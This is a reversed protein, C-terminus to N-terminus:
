PEAAADLQIMAVLVNRATDGADAGVSISEEYNDNHGMMWEDSPIFYGLADGTQGLVMRHPTVMADKIDLGNRTVPEGPFSVLQLQQGLRVYTSQTQVSKTGDNQEFDYDVIGVTAAGDFLANYVHVTWSRHDAVMTPAVPETDDMADLTLGAILEGYAQAREYDDVYDGEPVAPRADGLIGNFLLAPAGTEAELADVAYGCWDRSVDLNSSGLVTPHAAFVSVTGMTEGREDTAVLLTLEDDTFGWDRRNNNPATTTAVSLAGYDRNAWARNMSAVVEDIAPSRYESPGGGWLGQFDPAAHTHTTAVLIRSPPLGTADSVRARIDRTFRNGMGPLDTIALVLGDDGLEMAFSRVNLDDHIGGAVRSFPLGYSGLFVNNGDIHGPTPTITAVDFGLVYRPDATPSDGTTDTTDGSPEQGSSTETAPDVPGADLTEDGSAPASTAEGAAASTASSSGEVPESDATSM